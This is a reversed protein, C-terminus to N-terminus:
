CQLHQNRYMYQSVIRESREATGNFGRKNHCRQSICSESGVVDKDFDEPRKFFSWQERQIDELICISYVIREYNKGVGSIVIINPIWSKPRPKAKKDSKTYM